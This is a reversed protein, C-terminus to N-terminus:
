DKDDYDNGNTKNGAGCMFTQGEPQGFLQVDDFYGENYPENVCKGGGTPGVHM